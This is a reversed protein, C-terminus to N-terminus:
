QLLEDRWISRKLGMAGEWHDGLPNFNGWLLDGLIKRFMKRINGAGLSQHYKFFDDSHWRGRFLRLILRLAILINFHKQRFTAFCKKETQAVLVKLILRKGKENRLWKSFVFLFGSEPISFRICRFKQIEIVRQCMFGRQRILRCVPNLAEQGKQQCTLFISGTSFYGM